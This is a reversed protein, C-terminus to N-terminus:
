EVATFPLFADALISSMGAGSLFCQRRMRHVFRASGCLYVGWDKLDPWTERCYDYLDAQVAPAEAPERCVWHLRLNAHNRALDRLTRRHYFGAMSASGVVLEIPARHGRHLADRLVGYLPALGTGLGALLLPRTPAGTYFCQGMPGQVRLRDGVRARERLWGGFRGDPLLRIHFALDDDLVPHSALSYSRALRDEAWLTAYQGPRYDLDAAVRVQMVRDNLPELAVIRGPVSHEALSAPTVRMPTEPVCQCGLFLGLQKQGDSLGRQAGAPPDREPSRLLCSQCAGARCGHPVPEGHRLLGDLVSEGEDLALMRGNYDITAM